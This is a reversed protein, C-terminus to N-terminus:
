VWPECPTWWVAIRSTSWDPSRIARRMQMQSAQATLFSDGFMRMFCDSLLTEELHRPKGGAFSDVEGVQAHKGTHAFAGPCNRPGFVGHEPLVARARDSGLVHSGTSNSAVGHCSPAFTFSSPALCVSLSKARASAGIIICSTEM